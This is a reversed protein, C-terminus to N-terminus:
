ELIRIKIDDNSSCLAVPIPENHPHLRENLAALQVAIEGMFTLQTLMVYYKVAEDNPLERCCVNISDVMERLQVSRKKVPTETSENKLM